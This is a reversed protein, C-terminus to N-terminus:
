TNFPPSLNNTVKFLWQRQLMARLQHKGQFPPPLVFGEGDRNNNHQGGGFLEDEDSDLDHKAELSVRGMLEVNVAETSVM